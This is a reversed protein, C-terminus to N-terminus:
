TPSSIRNIRSTRSIVEIDSKLAGLQSCMQEREDLGRTRAESAQRSEEHHRLLTDPLVILGLDEHDKLVTAFNNDKVVLRSNRACWTAATNRLAAHYNPIPKFVMDFVDALSNVLNDTLLLAELKQQALLKLEPIGYKDAIAYFLVNNMLV